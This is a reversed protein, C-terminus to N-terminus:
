DDANTHQDTYPILEGGNRMDAMIHNTLLAASFRTDATNLLNMKFNLTTQLTSLTTGIGGQGPIASPSSSRRKSPSSTPPLLPVLRPTVAVTALIQIGQRIFLRLYQSQGSFLIAPPASPDSYEGSGHGPLSVSVQHFVPGCVVEHEECAQKGIPLVRCTVWM